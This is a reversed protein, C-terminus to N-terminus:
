AHVFTSDRVTNRCLYVAECRLCTPILHRSGGLAARLVTCIVHLAVCIDSCEEVSWLREAMQRELPGGTKKEKNTVHMLVDQFVFYGSFLM